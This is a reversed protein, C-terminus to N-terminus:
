DKVDRRDRGDKRNQKRERASSPPKEKGAVESKNVLGAFLSGPTPSPPLPIQGESGSAEDSGGTLTQITSIPPLPRGTFFAAMLRGKIMLHRAEAARETELALEERTFDTALIYELADLISERVVFRILDNKDWPQQESRELATAIFAVMRALLATFENGTIAAEFDHRKEDEFSRELRYEIEQSLSRGSQEAAQELQQRLERTTRSLIAIREGTPKENEAM